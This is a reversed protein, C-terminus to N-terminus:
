EQDVCRPLGHKERLGQMAEDLPVGEGRDAQALAREVARTSSTLEEATMQQQRFLELAVEPSLSEVHQRLQDGVFRHFEELETSSTTQM